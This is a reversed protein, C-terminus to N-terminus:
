SISELGPSEMSLEAISIKTYWPLDLAIHKMSRGFTRTFLLPTGEGHIEVSSVALFVEKWGQYEKYFSDAFRSKVHVACSRALKLENDKMLDLFFAISIRPRTRDDMVLMVYSGHLHIERVEANANSCGLQQAGLCDRLPAEQAYKDHGGAPTYVNGLTSTCANSSM